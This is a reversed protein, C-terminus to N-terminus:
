LQMFCVGLFVLVFALLTGAVLGLSAGLFEGSISFGVITGLIAMICAIAFVSTALPRHDEYPGVFKTAKSVFNRVLWGCILGAFPICLATLAIPKGQSLIAAVAVFGAILGVWELRINEVWSAPFQIPSEPESQWGALPAGRNELQSAGPQVQQVLVRSAGGGIIEIETDGDIWEGNSAAAFTTDGVSIEGAPKLPGVTFGRDGIQLGANM